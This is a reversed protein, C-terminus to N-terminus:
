SAGAGCAREIEGARGRAERAQGEAAAGITAARERDRVLPLNIRVNWLGARVAAEGLIAAIALDSRLMANTTGVLRGMLDLSQTGVDMIRRPVDIAGEVAADWDQKRQPDDEPLKWLANLRGYAAADQRALEVCRNAMDRLGEIAERHLADHAALSKRGVSFEVVMRALAAGLAATIAAAAGGGPTPTKGGIAELLADLQLNGVGHQTM